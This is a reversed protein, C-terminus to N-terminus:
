LNDNRQINGLGINMFKEQFNKAKDPTLKDTCLFFLILLRM